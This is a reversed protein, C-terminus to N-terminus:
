LPESDQDPPPLALLKQPEITKHNSAHRAKSRAQARKAAKTQEQMEELTRLIYSLEFTDSIEITIRLTTTPGKITAEYSKLRVHESDGNIYFGM